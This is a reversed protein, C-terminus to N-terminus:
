RSRLLPRDGRGSRLPSVGTNRRQEQLQENERVVWLGCVRSLVEHAYSEKAAGEVWRVATMEADGGGCGVGEAEVFDEEGRDGQLGELRFSVGGGEGVAEGHGGEGAPLIGAEFGGGEVGGVEVACGVVGDIGELGQAVFVGVGGEEVEDPGVAEEVKGAPAFGVAEEFEGLPDDDAAGAEGEVVERSEIESWVLTGADVEELGDVFVDGGGIEAMAESVSVRAGGEDWGFDESVDQGVVEVM